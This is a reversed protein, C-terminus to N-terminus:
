LEFLFGNNQITFINIYSLLYLISKKKSNLYICAQHASSVEKFFCM